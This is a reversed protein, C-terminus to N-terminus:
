APVKEASSWAAKELAERAAQRDDFPIVSQALIQYTEHGKGAILVCDNPGAERIAAEIALRRDPETHVDPHTAPIGKLIEAIIAVPNESRPNDSTVIVRHAGAAAAGLGPRKARDRDGGAGFVCILRGEVLRALCTVVRNLADPTHAYDVFVRPGVSPHIPELRGPVGCFGELGAVVQQPSFGWDLAVAAAALCNSVNHRGVLRTRVELVNGALHMRFRTGELSEEIMTATIDAKRGAEVSYSITRCRSGAQRRFAEFTPEDANVILAGHPKLHETIRQKAKLYSAFDGHYDLHDHTVNTVIAADLHTGAAREQDLAHSSLEIVAHGVGRRVMRGLWQALTACDPTTLTAPETAGAGDDYEVTGLLGASTGATRLISRILWSVTTKGNTGTVGAIRLHRSPDGALANALRAYAQRVNPVVCQPVAVDPLPHRVLLAHAGRRVAEMVFREGNTHSGPLAAFLVDPSCHESHATAASVRIDACGVFSAQPFLQRLSVVVPVRALATSMLRADRGTLWSM